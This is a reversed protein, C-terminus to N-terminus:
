ENKRGYDPHTGTLVLLAFWYAWPIERRNKGESCWFRWVRGDRGLMRGAAQGSLEASKALGRIQFVTPGEWGDHPHAWLQHFRETETERTIDLWDADTRFHAPPLIEPLDTRIYVAGPGDTRIRCLKFYHAEAEVPFETVIQDLLPGDAGEKRHIKFM